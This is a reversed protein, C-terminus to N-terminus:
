PANAPIWEVNEQTIESDLAIWEPDDNRSFGWTFSEAYVYVPRDDGGVSADLLGRIFYYGDSPIKGTYWVRNIIKM